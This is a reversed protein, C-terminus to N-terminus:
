QFRWIANSITGSGGLDSMLKIGLDIIAGNITSGCNAGCLSSRSKGKNVEAFPVNGTNWYRDEPCTGCPVWPGVDWVSAALTIGSNPNYVAVGQGCLSTAPLAVDYTPPTPGCAAKTGADFSSASGQFWVGVTASARNSYQDVVTIKRSSGTGYVSTIKLSTSTGTGNVINVTGIQYATDSSQSNAYVTVTGNYSTDPYGASTLATVGITFAQRAIISGPHYSEAPVIKPVSISLTTM